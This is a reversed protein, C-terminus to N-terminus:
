VIKSGIGDIIERWSEREKQGEDRQGGIKVILENAGSFVELATEHGYATPTHLVWCESIKSEQILLKNAPNHVQLWGNACGIKDLLGTYIQACGHNPVSVTLEEYRERAATLVEQLAKKGVPWALDAKVCRFIEQRSMHYKETLAVIDEPCTMARWEADIHDNFEYDINIISRYHPYRINFTPPIQQTSAYRKLLVSLGSESSNETIFIKHIAQGYFDFIQFSRQIKKDKYQKIYYIHNWHKFFIRLDLKRPNLVLGAEASINVKNYGYLHQNRFVGEQISIANKNTTMCKVHGLLELDTVFFKVDPIALITADHALRINTLEGESMGYSAAVDVPYNTKLKQMVKEIIM